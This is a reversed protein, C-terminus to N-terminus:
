NKKSIVNIKEFSTHLPHTKSLILSIFETIKYM